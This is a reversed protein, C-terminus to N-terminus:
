FTKKPRWRYSTVKMLTGFSVNDSTFCHFFSTEGTCRHAGRSWCVGGTELEPQM